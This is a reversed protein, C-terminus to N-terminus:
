CSQGPESDSTDEGNGGSSGSSSIGPEVSVAPVDALSRLIELHIRAPMTMGFTESTLRAVAARFRDALVSVPKDGGNFDVAIRIEVAEQKGYLGIRRVDFAPFGGALSRIADQVAKADIRLEGNESPIRIFRLGRPRFILCLLLLFFLIAFAAALGALFGCSFPHDSVMVGIKEILDRISQFM